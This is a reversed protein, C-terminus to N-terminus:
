RRKNKYSDNSNDIIKDLYEFYNDDFNKVSDYFAYSDNTLIQLTSILKKINEKNKNEDEMLLILEDLLSNYLFKDNYKINNQNLIINKFEYNIIDKEPISDYIINELNKLYDDDFRELTRKNLKLKLKLYHLDNM